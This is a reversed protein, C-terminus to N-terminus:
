ALSINKAHRHFKISTQTTEKLHSATTQETTYRTDQLAM